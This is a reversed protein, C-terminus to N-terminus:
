NAVSVPEEDSLPEPELEPVAELVPAEAEEVSFAAAIAWSLTPTDAAPTRPTARPM